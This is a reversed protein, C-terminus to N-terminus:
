DCSDFRSGKVTFKGNIDPGCIALETSYGSPHYAGLYKIKWAEAKELSDQPPSCVQVRPM